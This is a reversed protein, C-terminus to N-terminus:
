NIKTLRPSGSSKTSRGTGAETSSRIGAPTSITASLKTSPRSSRISWIERIRGSGTALGALFAAGQTTREIIELRLIPAGLLDAPFQM